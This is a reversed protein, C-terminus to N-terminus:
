PPGCSSPSSIPYAGSIPVWPSLACPSAWRSEAASRRSSPARSCSYSSAGPSTARSSLWRRSTRRRPISSSSSGPIDRTVLPVGLERVEADTMHGHYREGYPAPNEAYKCAEIAEAAMATAIGSTFVDNTRYNRTMMARIPELAAKLEGLTTVKRGTYAYICPLFYATSGFAVPAEAGLKEITKDVAKEALSYMEDSGRFVRDFL